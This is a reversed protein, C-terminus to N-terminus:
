FDVPCIELHLIYCYALCEQINGSILEIAAANGYKM